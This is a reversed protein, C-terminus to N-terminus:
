VLGREIKSLLISKISDPTLLRAFSAGPLHRVWEYVATRLEPTLVPKEAMVENLGDVVQRALDDTAYKAAELPSGTTKLAKQYDAMADLLVVKTRPYEALMLNWPLGRFDGASRFDTRVIVCPIDLMKAVMYEVVTGSDLEPGDFNFLGVDCSVVHLLDQDRISIATYERQELNQPVVCSFRGNSAREIADALMANGSLHKLSFLEGAFYISLPQTM